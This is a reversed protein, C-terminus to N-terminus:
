ISVKFFISLVFSAPMRISPLVARTVPALRPNPRCKASSSSPRPAETYAPARSGRETSRGPTVGMASSTVSGADTAAAAAAVPSTVSSILLAPEDVPALRM